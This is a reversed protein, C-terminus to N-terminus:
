FLAIFQQFVIFVSLKLACFNIKNIKLLFYSFFVKLICSEWCSIPSSYRFFIFQETKTALGSTDLPRTGGRKRPRWANFNASVWITFRYQVVFAKPFSDFYKLVNYFLIGIKMWTYFCYIWYIFRLLEYNSLSIQLFFTTFFRPSKHTLPFSSFFTFKQRSFSWYWEIEYLLYEKMVPPIMLPKIRKDPDPGMISRFRRRCLEFLPLM